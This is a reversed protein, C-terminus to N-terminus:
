GTRPFSFERDKQGKDGGELLSFPREHCGNAGHKDARDHSFEEVVAMLYVAGGVEGTEAQRHQRQQGAKKQVALEHSQAARIM